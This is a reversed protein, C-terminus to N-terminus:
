PTSRSDLALIVVRGVSLLALAIPAMLWLTMVNPLPALLSVPVLVAGIILGILSGFRNLALRRPSGPADARGLVILKAAGNAALVTWLAAAVLLLRPLNEDASVAGYLVGIEMAELAGFLITVGALFTGSWRRRQAASDSTGKPQRIAVFLLNLLLGAPGALLAEIPLPRRGAGLHGALPLLYDAPRDLITLVAGVSMTALIIVILATLRRDM